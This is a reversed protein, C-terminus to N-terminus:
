SIQARLLEYLSFQSGSFIYPISSPGRWMHLLKMAPDEHPLGLAPASVTESQIAKRPMGKEQSYHKMQGSFPFIVRPKSCSSIGLSTTIGLLGGRKQPSPYSSHGAPPWQFSPNHLFSPSALIQMYIFLQNFMLVNIIIKFVKSKLLSSFNIFRITTFCISQLMAFRNLEMLLHWKKLSVNGRSACM